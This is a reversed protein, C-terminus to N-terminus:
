SRKFVSSQGNPILEAIVNLRELLELGKPTTKYIPTDKRIIEVLGNEMLRELYSRASLSNLNAERVIQGKTSGDKCIQLVLAIITKRSRRRRPM